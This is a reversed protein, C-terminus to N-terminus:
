TQGLCMNSWSVDGDSSQGLVLDIDQKGYGPDQANHKRAEAFALLTGDPSTEIAPIRFTHYGETGSVFVDVHTKDALAAVCFLLRGRCGLIYSAEFYVASAKPQGYRCAAPEDIRM